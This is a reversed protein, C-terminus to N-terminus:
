GLVVLSEDILAAPCFDFQDDYIPLTDNLRKVLGIIYSFFIEFNISCTDNM